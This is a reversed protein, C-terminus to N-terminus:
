EAAMDEVAVYGWTQWGVGMVGVMDDNNFWCKDYMLDKNEVSEISGLM